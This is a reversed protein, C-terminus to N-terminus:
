NGTNIIIVSNLLRKTHFDCKNKPVKHVHKPECEYSALHSMQKNGHCIDAHTYNLNQELVYVPLGLVIVGEM